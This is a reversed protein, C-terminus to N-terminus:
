RLVESPQTSIAGKPKKDTLHDVLRLGLALMTLVPNSHSGTPFVAQSCLFLNPVGWVQLNKDVVGNGETESMRCGGMNHCVDSLYNEWNATKTDIHDYLVVDGLQLAELQAKLAQAIFVTTHWTKQTISWHIRAEPIEFQDRIDCLDIYSDVAPEQEMMLSLKAIANKKYYFRHMLYAVFSKAITAVSGPLKELHKLSHDKKFAKLEAYIDFTDKPPRFMISASGNLLQNRKQFERTLSLRVSYKKGNYVHTNFIRQLKYLNSNEITGVEICPHDMFYKGLLGAHNGLNNHLLIRVTEITGAAIILTNVPMIFLQNSFNSVEINEIKDDATKQITVLQANYLVHINDELVKKHHLYFNTNATWKAVHFNFIAPDIGPDTIKIKPFIDTTYNKTDIGMFADAAKYYSALESFSIPWGSNKVWDRPEFDIPTFPLSQGGWSITTGGIVRKRGWVANKLPKGTQQVTNLKQKEDNETYNGSEIILVSKGKLALSVALMIGATGAGIIVYDATPVHYSEPHKTNLDTFAM